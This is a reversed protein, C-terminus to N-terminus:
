MGLISQSSTRNGDVCAVLAKLESEDTVRQAGLRTELPAELKLAAAGDQLLRGDVAEDNLELVVM